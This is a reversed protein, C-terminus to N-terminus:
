ENEIDNIMYKFEKIRYNNTNALIEILADNTFSNHIKNWDADASLLGIKKLFICEKYIPGDHMIINEPIFPTSTLNLLMKLTLEEILEETLSQSQIKNLDKTSKIVWSAAIMRNGKNTLLWNIARLESAIILNAAQRKKDYFEKSFYLYQTSLMKHIAFANINNRVSLSDTPEWVSFAYILNTKLAEPMLYADMQILKVDSENLGEQALAAMLAYHADSGFAYGIKKGKLESILTQQKAIIATYGLQTMLAIVIDSNSAMMITPMDGCHAANLYGKKVFYNVDAGKLFAYFRIEMGLEKLSQVLITDRKMVETVIGTPINFPQIGINIINDSIEFKYKSYIPHTSLDKSQLLQKPAREIFTYNVTIFFLLATISFIIVYVM